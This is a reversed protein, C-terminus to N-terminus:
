FQKEQRCLIHHYGAKALLERQKSCQNEEPDIVNGFRQLEV